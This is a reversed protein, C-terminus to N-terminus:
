RNSLILNDYYRLVAAIESNDTKRIYIRYTRMYKKIEGSKDGFLKLFGKSSKIRTYGGNVMMYKEPSYIYENICEKVLLSSKHKIIFKSRGDYVVEYFGEPLNFNLDKDATFYRFQLSDNGFYFSFCDIPVKNLSLMFVKDNILKLSDYYLLEDLNTDYELWINNYRRGKLILSSRHKTGYFLIPKQTSTFYYPIYEEGNVLEDINDVNQYYFRRLYDTQCDLISNYDMMGYLDFSSHFEQALLPCTLLLIFVLSSIRPM